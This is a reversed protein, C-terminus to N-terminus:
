PASDRIAWVKLADGLRLASLAHNVGAKAARRMRTRALAESLALGSNQRHIAVGSKRGWALRRLVETPNWGEARVRRVRFGTRELAGRLAAETWLIVHEPPCVVSWAPGLIRRNLSEANPTTLYLLGGPRLWRAADRLVGLPAPVHELLEIMSVVDFAGDVFRADETPGNTVSWGQARGHELARGSVEIGFCQWGNRGAVALLGGEGFGVDLWRSTRRFQESSQVLRELSSEVTRATTFTASDHYHEYAGRVDADLSDCAAFIIGCRSCKHLECHDKKAWHRAGAERCVPCPGVPALEIRM